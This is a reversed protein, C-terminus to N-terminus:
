SRVATWHNERKERGQPLVGPLAQEDCFSGDPKGAHCLATNTRGRELAASRLREPLLSQELGLRLLSLSPSHLDEQM